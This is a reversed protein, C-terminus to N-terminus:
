VIKGFVLPWSHTPWTFVFLIYGGGHSAHTSVGAVLSRLAYWCMGILFLRKHGFEDGLRGGILIFTGITLSYGAVLWPLHGADESSIGFSKGVIGVIAITNAMGFQNTFMATCITGVFLIQRGTSLVDAPFCTVGDIAVYCLGSM